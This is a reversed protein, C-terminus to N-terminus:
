GNGNEGKLIDTIDMPDIDKPLTDLYNKLARGASNWFAPLNRLLPIRDLPKGAQYQEVCYSQAVQALMFTHTAQEKLAEIAGARDSLQEQIEAFRSRQTPTMAEQGRDRVAYTGHTKSANQRQRLAAKTMRAM